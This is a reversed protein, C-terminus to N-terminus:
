TIDTLIHSYCQQVTYRHLKQRIIDRISHGRVPVKMLHTAVTSLDGVKGTGARGRQMSLGEDALEREGNSMWDIPGGWWLDEVTVREKLRARM